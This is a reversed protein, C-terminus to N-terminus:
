ASDTINTSCNRVTCCNDVHIVLTKVGAQNRRVKLAVLCLRLEEISESINHLFSWTLVQNFAGLVTVYGVNPQYCGIHKNCAGVRKATKCNVDLSLIPSTRSATKQKILPKHWEFCAHLVDEILCQSMFRADCGDRDTLKSFNSLTAKVEATPAASRTEASAETSATLATEAALLANAALCHQLV